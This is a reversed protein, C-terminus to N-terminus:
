AHPFSDIGLQQIIPAMRTRTGRGVPMGVGDAIRNMMEFNGMVAAADVTATPGLANVVASRAEDVGDGVLTANVFGILEGGGPLLPDGVGEAIPLLNIRQNTAEISWSLM